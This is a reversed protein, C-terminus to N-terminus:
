VGYFKCIDASSGHETVYMEIEIFEALLQCKTSEEMMPNNEILNNIEIARQIKTAM